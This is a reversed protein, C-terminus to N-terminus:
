SSAARAARPTADTSSSSAGSAFTTASQNKLAVRGLGDGYSSLDAAEPHSACRTADPALAPDCFTPGIASLFQTVNVLVPLSVGLVDDTVPDFVSVVATFTGGGTV